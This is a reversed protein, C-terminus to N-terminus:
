IEPLARVYKWAGESREFWSLERFSGVGGGDRFHAVFLVTGTDDTTDGGACRLVDLGIWRIAADLELQSPRTSPHWTGLLYSANGLAFAAYRSRMLVEATLAPADGALCPGCCRALMLGSGCPCTGLGRM